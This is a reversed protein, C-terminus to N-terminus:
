FLTPNNRADIKAQKAADKAAQKAAKAAAKQAANFEADAGAERRGETWVTEQILSSPVHIDQGFQDFSIPGINRSVRQVAENHQASVASVPTIRTDGKPLGLREKTYADPSLPFDKDALRKAPSYGRTRQQGTKTTSTRESSLPQGSGTAIMWTDVAVPADPRLPYAREGEKEQSFMLMGQNPSQTGAVVDRLHSAVGRYDLEVMSGPNSQAQMEGYAATKPTTSVDFAEHPAIEGRAISIAEGVNSAHARGAQVFSSRLDEDDGFDIDPSSPRDKSDGRNFANWSSSSAAMEGLEQSPIDGVKRGGVLKDRQTSVLRSIGGLSATEDEPTKGASLKGGMAAINRGSLEAEPAVSAEQQRRMDFYWATGPIATGESIGRQIATDFLRSFQQSIHSITTPQDTVDGSTQMFRATEADRRAKEIVQPNNEPNSARAELRQATFELGTLANGGRVEGLSKDIQRKKGKFAPDNWTVYGETFSRDEAMM